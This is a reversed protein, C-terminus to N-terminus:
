RVRIPIFFRRVHFKAPQPAVQQNANIGTIQKSTTENHFHFEVM